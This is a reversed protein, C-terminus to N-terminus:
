RMANWPHSPDIPRGSEDCGRLVGTRDESQKVADHCPKCLAQHNNPDWFLKADGCHPKKHDVVTAATLRGVAACLSCFPHDDLYSLRYARWRADYGRAASSRRFPPQKRARAPLARHIPPRFPL